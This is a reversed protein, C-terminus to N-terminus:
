RSEACVNVKATSESTTEEQRFSFSSCTCAFISREIREELASERKIKSKTPIFYTVASHIEMVRTKEISEHTVLTPHSVKLVEVEFNRGTTKGEKEILKM